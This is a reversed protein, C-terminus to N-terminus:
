GEINPRAQGPQSLALQDTRQVHLAFTCFLIKVVLQTTSVCQHRRRMHRLRDEISRPSVNFDGAIEKATKGAALLEIIQQNDIDLRRM